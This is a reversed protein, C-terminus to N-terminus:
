KYIQLNKLKYYLSSIKDSCAVFNMRKDPNSETMDKILSIIFSRLDKKTPNLHIEANPFKKLFILHFLIGLSYIEAKEPDIKQRPNRRLVEPPTYKETCVIRNRLYNKYKSACGFDSLTIIFKDNLLLNEPKLDGHSIRLEFLPAVANLIKKM